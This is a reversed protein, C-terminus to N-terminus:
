KRSRVTPMIQIKVTMTM